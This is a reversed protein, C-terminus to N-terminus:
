ARAGRALERVTALAEGDRAVSSQILRYPTVRAGGQDISWEWVDIGRRQVAAFNRGRLDAFADVMARAGEGRTRARDGERAATGPRMSQLLGSAEIEETLLTVLAEELAPGAREDGVDGVAVRLARPTLEYRVLLEEWEVESPPREPFRGFDDLIV